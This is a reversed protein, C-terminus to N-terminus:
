IVEQADSKSDSELDTGLQLIDAWMEKRAGASVRLQLPHRIVNAQIKLIKEGEAPEGVTVELRRGRLRALTERRGTLMRVALSGCLLLRRPRLLTIARVLLPLSSEMEPESPLRGGPPRWPLAPSLILNKRELAISALIRDLLKGSEGSFPQGSRDEDADPAEGIIMLPAGVPGVPLVTHTATRRLSCRDWSAAAAALSEMDMIRSLTPGPQVTAPMVNDPQVRASRAVDRVAPESPRPPLTIPSRKFYDAPSDDLATDVGWDLYLSLLARAAAMDDMDSRMQMM